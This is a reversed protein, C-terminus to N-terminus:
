GLLSGELPGGEPLPAASNAVAEEIAAIWPRMTEWAVYRVGDSYHNNKADITTPNGSKDIVRRYGESMEWVTHQCNKPHVIVLPQVAGGSVLTVPNFLTNLLDVGDEVLSKVAPRAEDIGHAQMTKISDPRSPDCIVAEPRGFRDIWLRKILQCNEEVSAQEMHIEDYIYMMGPAVFILVTAQPTYNFDKGIYMKWGLARWNRPIEFEACHIEPDFAYLVLGKRSPKRCEMQAKWFDVSISRFKVIIDKIPKCGNAGKLRGCCTPLIPCELCKDFVTFKVWTDTEKGAVMRNSNAQAIAEKPALTSWNFTTRNIWVEVPKTGSRSDPCRETIDLYCWMLVPLGLRKANDIENQALGFAFKRTTTYVVSPANGKADSAPIGKADAYATPDALELEDFRVKPEHPSNVRSMTCPIIQLTGGNHMVTRSMLSSTVACAFEETNYKSVYSYCKRAQEEIAGIHVIGVGKHVLEMSESIGMTLTKYGDRCGICVMSDNEEFWIAKLMHFPTVHGNCYPIYPIDFKYFVRVYHLLEEETKPPNWKM